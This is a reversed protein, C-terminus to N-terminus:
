WRSRPEYTFRYTTTGTASCGLVFKNQAQAALATGFGRDLVIEGSVESNAGSTTVYRRLSQKQTDWVIRETSTVLSTISVKHGRNCKYNFGKSFDLLFTLFRNSDYTYSDCIPTSIAAVNNLTSYAIPRAYIAFESIICKSPGTGAASNGIYLSGGPAGVTSITAGTPTTITGNINYTITAGGPIDPDLRVIITNWTTDSFSAGISNITLTGGPFTLVLNQSTAVIHLSLPTTTCQFLYKNTADNTAYNRKFRIVITAERNGGLALTPNASYQLSAGSAAFSAAPFGYQGDVIAVNGNKTYGSPSYILEPEVALQQISFASSNGIMEIKMPTSGQACNTDAFYYNSSFGAAASLTVSQTTVVSSQVDLIAFRLTAFAAVQIHIPDILEVDFSELICVYTVSTSADAGTATSNVVKVTVPRVSAGQAACLAAVGAINTQIAENSAGTFLLTLTLNKGDFEQTVRKPRPFQDYERGVRVRMSPSPPEPMRPCYAGYTALIDVGNIIVKGAAM